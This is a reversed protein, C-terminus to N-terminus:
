SPTETANPDLGDTGGLLHAADSQSTRRGGFTATLLGAGAAAVLVDVLDGPTSAIQGWAELVISLVAPAKAAESLEGTRENEM